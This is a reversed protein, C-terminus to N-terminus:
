HHLFYYFYDLMESLSKFEKPDLWVRGSDSSEDSKKELREKEVSKEVKQKKSVEETEEDDKERGRKSKSDGNADDRANPNQTSSDLNELDMDEIPPNAETPEPSAEKEVM